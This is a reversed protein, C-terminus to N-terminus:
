LWDPPPRRYTMGTVSTWVTNGDPDRAVAFRAQKARHHHRCLCHLNPEATPGAPWPVRHDIDAGTAPRTCGPFTCTRDRSRIQRVLRM